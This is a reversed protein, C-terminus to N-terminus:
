HTACVAYQEKSRPYPVYQIFGAAFYRRKQISEQYKQLPFEHQGMMYNRHKFIKECWMFLPQCRERDGELCVCARTIAAVFARFRVYADM